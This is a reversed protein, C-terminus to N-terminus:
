ANEQPVLWFGIVLIPVIFLLLDNVTYGDPPSPNPRRFSRTLGSRSGTHMADARRAGRDHRRYRRGAPLEFAAFGISPIPPSKGTM